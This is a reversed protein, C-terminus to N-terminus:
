GGQAAAFREGVADWDVTNWWAELYDARRNQYQLYYAHEWVDNGLIPTGPADVLDAMLPNDQNPTSTVALEGAENVILWTWGSGFRALGAANVEEKMADFSGFAEDIAAALDGSPQGGGNPGMIQWFMTHNVHGGGNNRVTTRIAEPVQDLNQILEEPALDALDGLQDAVGNLMRVYAAHHRDHHLEMTRADIHPELADFAYPLPDLRYPGEGVDPTAGAAPTAQAGARGRGLWPLALAGAGVAAARGVLTRRPLSLQV